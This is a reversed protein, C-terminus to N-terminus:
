AVLPSVLERVDELQELGEVRAILAEGAERKMPLAGYGWCRRFKELNEADSLPADPHGPLHEVRTEHTDGNKLVIRVQQPAMAKADPNADLVVEVRAALDHVRPDALREPAYHPVDVGGHLLATAVVFSTCLRAYNPSPLAVDPRSVLQHVLPPVEVTVKAVDDAAFGHRARLQLAGGIAGHILRGAPYPKHSLETIRWDKGLRELPADLQPNGDEYLNYYGYRGTLVDRPAVLGARALDVATLAARTNFGMQMPLLPSGEIHPQLTGSIQGYLAGFANVTTEEDLGLVKCVAATAGFSGITAPRFFRMAAGTAEGITAAVDVGLVIALLFRKGDVPGEPGGVGGQAAKTARQKEAQALAAPILTAMTHVVAGEHVCDFELCHLFYSNVLAASAAPLRTGHVWVTADDGSGWQAATEALKLAWPEGSGAVAVGLSDLLFTKAAGVAAEPLHEFETEAVHRALKEVPNDSM